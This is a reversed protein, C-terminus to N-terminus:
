VCFLLAPGKVGCVFILEPHILSVFILAFIIFEQFFNIPM